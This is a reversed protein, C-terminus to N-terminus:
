GNRNIAKTISRMLHRLIPFAGQPSGRNVDNDKAVALNLMQLADNRHERFMGERASFDKPAVSSVNPPCPMSKTLRNDHSPSSAICLGALRREDVSRCSRQDKASSAHYLSSTLEHNISRRRGQSGQNQPKDIQSQLSVAPQNSSGERVFKRVAEGQEIAARPTNPVREQDEPRNSYTATRRGYTPDSPQRSSLPQHNDQPAIHAQSTGTPPGGTPRGSPWLTPGQGTLGGRVEPIPTDGPDAMVFTFVAPPTGAEAEAQAPAHGTSTQIESIPRNVEGLEQSERSPPEREVMEPKSTAPPFGQSIAICFQEARKLVCSHTDVIQHFFELLELNQPEQQRVATLNALAQQYRAAELDKVRLAAAYDAMVNGSLEAEYWAMDSDATYTDCQALGDLPRFEPDPLKTQLADERAKNMAAWTEIQATRVELDKKVWDNEIGLEFLDKSFPGQDGTWRPQDRSQGSGARFPFNWPLKPATRVAKQITSSRQRLVRALNEMSLHASVGDGLVHETDLPHHESISHPARATITHLQFNLVMQRYPTAIRELAERAIVVDVEMTINDRSRPKLRYPMAGGEEVLLEKLGQFRQLQNGYPHEALDVPPYIHEFDREESPFIVVRVDVLDEDRLIEAWKVRAEAMAKRLKPAPRPQNRRSPDYGSHFEHLLEYKKVPDTDDDIAQQAFIIDSIHDASDQNILFVAHRQMIFLLDIGNRRSMPADPTRRLMKEALRRDGM